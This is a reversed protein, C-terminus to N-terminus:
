QPHLATRKRPSKWFGHLANFFQAYTGKLDADAMELLCRTAQFFASLQFSDVDTCIMLRLLVHFTKSEQCDTAQASVTM